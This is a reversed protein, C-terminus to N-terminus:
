PRLEVESDGRAQRAPDALLADRAFLAKLVDVLGQPTVPMVLFEDAGERLAFIEHETSGWGTLVVVPIHAAAPVSRIRRVLLDDGTGRVFLDSVVADIRESVLLELATDGHDTNRVSWGAYELATSYIRRCDPDEHALLITREMRLSDRMDAGTSSGREPPLMRDPKATRLVKRANVTSHM